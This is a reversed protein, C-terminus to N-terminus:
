LGLKVGFTLVRPNPYAGVNVGAATDRSGGNEYDRDSGEPDYGSFKTLLLLNQGSVYVKISQIKPITTITYGISLNSLRAFDGKEVYRSSATRNQGGVPIDTENSPTWQNLQVPSLFSRQNGTAGVLIGNVVNLIQFGSMGTFFINADFGKYSVTNNFGWSFTPTGNGIASLIINGQADRQYRADGPKEGYKAAETADKTKWTGLFTEGYFQGLPQGVQIINLARGSGDINNFSGLIQPRGDLKIVKNKVFSSTLNSTWNFNSNKLITGGLNIDIGKNEVEGVNRPITGGGAFDPIPVALLLDTTNKQFADISLNARGNFLGLDVGVNFQSTTEWTLDPNGYGGPSSGPSLTGGNFLYPRNILVDPYTSYPAVNQNGVQGWGARLKLSNIVGDNSSIFGLNSFNYAVAISPFIGVDNGKRFRSSRDSRITGTVLLNNQFIYEARGMLSEIGSKNYDNNIGTALNLEALYFGGPVLINNANYNNSRFVSEQIEYLGTLKLDHEGMKKSYTLINSLQYNQGRDSGFTAQPSPTVPVASYREYTSNLISYGGVATLNLGKLIDYSINLNSNIRDQNRVDDRLLMDAVPNYGLHALAKQSFNNYVGNANKIPTTPDWTLARVFM